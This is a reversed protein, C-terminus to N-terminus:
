ILKKILKYLLRVLPKPLKYFLIYLMGQKSWEISDLINKVQIPSVNNIYYPKLRRLILSDILHNLEANGKPFYDKIYLIFNNKLPILHRTISDGVNRNYYSLIEDIYAIKYKLALQMWLLLDEGTSIRSDFQNKLLVERAVVTASTHIPSVYYKSFIEIYNLLCINKPIYKYTKVPIVKGKYVEAFCSSFVQAESYNQILMCIKELYLPNWWDDADIFAIYPNVAKMIGYNRTASVGENRKSFVRLRSDHIGKVIELSNDTSGDDVVIIEFDSYSQQIVSLLTHKIYNAKNFLPIIVSFKINYKRPDNM